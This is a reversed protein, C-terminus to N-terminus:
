GRAGESRDPDCGGSGGEAGASDCRRGRWPPGARQVVVEVFRHTRHGGLSRDSPQGGHEKAAATVTSPVSGPPAPATGCVDCYGEVITGSCGAEACNM